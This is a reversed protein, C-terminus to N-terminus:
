RGATTCTPPTSGPSVSAGHVQVNTATALGAADGCAIAAIAAAEACEDDTGEEVAWVAHAVASDALEVAVAVGALMHKVAQFEGILRGFQVREKAYAM